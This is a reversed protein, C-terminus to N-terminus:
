NKFYNNLFSKVKGAKKEGAARQMVHQEEHDSLPSHHSTVGSDESYISTNTVEDAITRIISDITDRETGLPDVLAEIQPFRSTLEALFRETAGSVLSYLAKRENEEAFEM